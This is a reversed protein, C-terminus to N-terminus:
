SEIYENLASYDASSGKSKIVIKLRDSPFNVLKNYIKTPLVKSATLYLVVQSQSDSPMAIRFDCYPLILDIEDSTLINVQLFFSKAFDKPVKKM